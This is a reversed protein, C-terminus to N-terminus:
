MTCLTRVMSKKSRYPMSSSTVVRPVGIATAYHAHVHGALCAQQLHLFLSTEWEPNAEVYVKVAPDNPDGTVLLNSYSLQALALILGTKWADYTEVKGNWM